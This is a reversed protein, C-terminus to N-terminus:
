KHHKLQSVWFLQWVAAAACNSIGPFVWRTAQVPCLGWYMVCHSCVLEKRVVVFWGAWFERTNEVRSQLFIVCCLMNFLLIQIVGSQIFMGEM